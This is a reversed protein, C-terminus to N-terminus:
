AFLADEGPFARKLWEAFARREEDTKLRRAGAECLLQALAPDHAAIDEALRRLKHDSVASPRRRTKSRPQVFM